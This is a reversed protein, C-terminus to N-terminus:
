GRRNAACTYLRNIRVIDIDSLQKSKGMTVSADPIPTITVANNKGLARRTYHMISTYDYPTNLNNTDFKKFQFKFNKMINNFNIKVYQDRDSRMHEHYFGLTHLLEHQIIGHDICGFKQLTLTQKDGVYGPTTACGFKPVINLYATQRARPIYRICTNDEIGKMANLITRKENQDYKSSLVYPVEVYGNASKALSLNRTRPMILDGELMFETSGNNMRLITTTIDETDSQDMLIESEAGHDEMKLKCLGLLLLLLLSVMKM